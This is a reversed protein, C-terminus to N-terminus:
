PHITCGPRFDPAEGPTIGVAARGSLEAVRAILDNLAFRDFGEFSAVVDGGPALLVHAPTSALGYAAVTRRGDDVLVPFTVGSRGVFRRTERAGDLSIALLRFREGAYAEHIRDWHVYCIDCTQCDLAFFTLLM